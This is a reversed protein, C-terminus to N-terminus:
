CIPLHPRADPHARTQQGPKPPFLHDLMKIILDVISSVSITKSSGELEGDLGMIGFGSTEFAIARFDQM